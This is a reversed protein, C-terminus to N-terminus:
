FIKYNIHESVDSDNVLLKRSECVDKWAVRNQLRKEWVLVCTEDVLVFGKAEIHAVVFHHRAKKYALRCFSM